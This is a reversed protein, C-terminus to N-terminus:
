MVGGNFICLLVFIECHLQIYMCVANHLKSGFCLGPGRLLSFPPCPIGLYEVLRNMGWFGSCVSLVKVM